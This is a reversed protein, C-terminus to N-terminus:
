SEGADMPSENYMSINNSHSAVLNNTDIINWMCTSIVVSDSFTVFTVVYFVHQSDTLCLSIYSWLINHKFLLIYFLIWAM